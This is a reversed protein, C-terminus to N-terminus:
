KRYKKPPRRRTHHISSILLLKKRKHTKYVIHYPFYDIKAERYKKRDRSGFTEPHQVVEEIKLRVAKIFREGLGSQKDEYWAYAESYEEVASPHLQYTYDM